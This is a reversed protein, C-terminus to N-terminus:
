VVRGEEARIRLWNSPRFRSGYAAALEDARAVFGALGGAYGDMFAATGGTWAPFGIGLISGVNAAAASDLIGEEICHATELAMVFLYRDQIDRLAITGPEAGVVEALGPWIRKDGQGTYEYFGGGAARGSRGAAVLADITTAGPAPGTRRGERDAAAQAEARIHQTLTLSVEDYMELPAAPFGAMTAAREVSTPAIGEELLLVAETLLAGFVRSTYFGRGDRVVIPVKGLAVVVDIAHALSKASTRDGRIVEVLRMRHVPSFFHLGVVRSPRSAAVALESIPLTSTNSAILAGPAAMADAEALVRAKLVADEFVAEIILEAGSLEAATATPTIRELILDREASTRRGRRVASDLLQAAHDKGRQAAEVTVDKLVVTMGATACSYAIGSGMMGAGLVAVRAPTHRAVGRPRQAGNALQPLDIFFTRIMAKSIPGTALDVFYRSEIRSATDVDVQAGEVAAALIARPAPYPAGKLQARLTAPFAPLNAALGPSAPTGGPMRYGRRDWPQVAADPDARHALIWSRAVRRLEKRSPVVEDIVGAALAERPTRKQGQLLWQTLATQVGLMRVLRTTGGGAPLLGLSVEPLGLEIADSDLAIRRHAALAVELGGGLASGNIAAVVPRGCRELRRLQAKITEVMEFVAAQDGPGASLVLDLDAGAFFSKKASALIVGVVEGIEAELRDVAAGMAEVYAATMTNVSRDPDDFTLTVIGASSREYRVAPPTHRSRKM